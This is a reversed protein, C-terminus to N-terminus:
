LTSPPRGVSGTTRTHGAQPEGCVGVVHDAEHWVVDDLAGSMPDSRGRTLEEASRRYMDRRLWPHVHSFKPGLAAASVLVARAFDVLSPM